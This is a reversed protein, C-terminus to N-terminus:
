NKNDHDELEYAKTIEGKDKLQRAKRIRGTVQHAWTIVGKIRDKIKKRPPLNPAPWKTHDTRMKEKTRFYRTDYAKSVRRRYFVTNKAFPEKVDVDDENLYMSDTFWLILEKDFLIWTIFSIIPVTQKSVKHFIDCRDRIKPDVRVPSHAILHITNGNQGSTGFFFDENKTFKETKEHNRFDYDRYAEDIVIYSDVIVEDTMERSWKHTTGLRPHWIPYNTFVTLKGRKMANLAHFTCLWTKGARPIGFWLEVTMTTGEPFIATNTISELHPHRPIPLRPGM